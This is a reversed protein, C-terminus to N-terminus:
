SARSRGESFTSTIILRLPTSMPPQAAAKMSIPPDEACVVPCEFLKLM